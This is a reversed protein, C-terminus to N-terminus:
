FHVKAVAYLRRDVKEGATEIQNTLNVQEGVGAISFYNTVNYAIRLNLTVYDQVVFPVIVPSQLLPRLYDTFSSQWRAQLDFEWKPLSYGLGWIVEHRPTSNAYQVQTNLIQAASATIDQSISAYRYSLNWRLGGRTKGRAGAEFGIENSSGINNVSFIPERGYFYSLTYGAFPILNTNRQFFVSSTLTAGLSALRRDYALEANWVSTPHLDPAGAVLGGFYLIQGSFDILSPLQLGRAATIRFTDNDTARIVLGSNFSTAALTTNDYIARTRGPSPLFAGTNYLQLYDERVANTLELVRSIQWDWMGNAAFVNYSSTGGDFGSFQIGNNRYELGLRVTNNANFKLLDSVKAVLVDSTNNLPGGQEFNAITMNRYIDFDLAGLKTDAAGGFRWYSVNNAEDGFTDLTVQTLTHANAYGSEARLLITPTVQWRGSINWTGQRPPYPDAADNLLTYGNSEYGGVSIRVGITSGFHQTAVLSGSAYGQSGGRVTASNVKDLLPDFTVINIVGAAANFGFLATAPGKVIEIQRIEDLQVPITSWATYGYDDHYVQRGDILVLMRPYSPTDYGRIGVQVDGWSYRRIDIGTVFQLIDPINDAGSQRIQDANIIVMDAPVRSALQPKGTASTTVPQGYMQELTGYDVAQAFAV